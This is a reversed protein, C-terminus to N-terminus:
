ASPKSIVLRSLLPVIHEGFLNELYKPEQMVSGVFGQYGPNLNFEWKRKGM